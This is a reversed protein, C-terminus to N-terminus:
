FGRVQYGEKEAAERLVSLATTKGTGAGGQLGIIQDRSCLIQEIASRQKGNLSRQQSEAIATVVENVREAEVMPPRNEKGNLMTRINEKEMAVMRDTTIAPQHKPRNIPKFEASEQRRHLEAAVAAVNTLGLNRRLADIWVDRMDAVAETKLANDRAFTVAEQARKEIENQPLRRPVRARAQAVLRRAQSNHKTDM